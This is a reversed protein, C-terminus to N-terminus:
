GILMEEEPYSFYEEKQLHQIAAIFLVPGLRGVYMLLVLIMKGIASLTSTLGTSLGVTCYASVVEFIYELFTGRSVSHPADGGETITLLLAAFVIITLSTIVLIFARNVTQDDVATKNIVAQRRGKFQSTIFALLTRFTSIKIGGACSGSAGGIFMLMIMILLSVNTMTGIDLTNFGATRCTVSQFLASLIETHPALNQHFGVFEALYISAWGFVILFLTTQLIVKSYWSLRKQSSAPVLGIFSVIRATTELLVSFGIGGAIILLMIVLNIGWNGQWAKLSTAQLSFGANCFASIAHFLAAFPPFSSPAMLFLLVAGTMEIVLTWAVLILLFKGLHFSPDHLLNKGVAIRDTLSIRRRLLYFALSTFTMIGLGGVQILGLIVAKGALSFFTGTDVVVLGTVCTASTATFLADIWSIPRASASFPAHLLLTGTGIVAAFFLIPMSFPSILQKM